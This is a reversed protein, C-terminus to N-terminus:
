WDLLPKKYQYKSEEAMYNGQVFFCVPFAESSFGM